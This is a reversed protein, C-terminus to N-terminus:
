VLTDSLLRYRRANRACTLVNKYFQLLIVLTHTQSCCDARRGCRRLVHSIGLPRLLPSQAGSSITLPKVVASEIRKKSITKNAM